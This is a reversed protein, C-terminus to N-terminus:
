TRVLPFASRAGLNQFYLGPVERSVFGYPTLVRLLRTLFPLIISLVCPDVSGLSVPSRPLLSPTLILAPFINFLIPSSRITHSFSILFFPSFHYHVYLGTILFYVRLAAVSYVCCSSAPTSDFASNLLISLLPSILCCTLCSRSWTTPALLVFRTPTIELFSLLSYLIAM